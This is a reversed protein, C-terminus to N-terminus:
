NDRLDDIITIQETEQTNGNLKETQAKLQAIKAKQEDTALNMHSALWDLAKMRDALKISSGNKSTKIEAIITGDM